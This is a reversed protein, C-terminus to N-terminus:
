NYSLVFDTVAQFDGSVIKVPAPTEGQSGLGKVYASFKLTNSTPQLKHTSDSKKNLTIPTNNSDIIQVGAGSATGTIALLADAEDTAATGSFTVKVTDGTKITCDVLKIDFPVPSSQGDSTGNNELLADSIQGLEVIQDVSEPAISCPATIISGNFTVKGNGSNEPAAYAGATMLGTMATVLLIKKFSM